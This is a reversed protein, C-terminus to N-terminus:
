SIFTTEVHAEYPSNALADTEVAWGYFLYIDDSMKGLGMAGPQTFNQAERNKM